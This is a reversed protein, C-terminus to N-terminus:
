KSSVGVFKNPLLTRQNLGCAKSNFNEPSGRAFEVKCHNIFIGIFPSSGRIAVFDSWRSCRAVLLFVPPFLSFVFPPGAGSRVRLLALGARGRCPPLLLFAMPLAAFALKIDRSQVLRSAIWASAYSLCGSGTHRTARFRFWSHCGFFLFM